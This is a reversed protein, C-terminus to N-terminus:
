RGDLIGVEGVIFRDDFALVVPITNETMIESSFLIYTFGEVPKERDTNGRHM